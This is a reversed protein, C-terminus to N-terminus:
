FATQMQIEQYLLLQQNRTSFHQYWCSDRSKFIKQINPNKWTFYLQALKWRQWIYIVSKLYPPPPSKPTGMRSYIQFHGDQIPNLWFVNNKIEYKCFICKPPTHTHTHTHTQTHTHTHTRTHTYTQTIKDVKNLNSDKPLQAVLLDYDSSTQDLLLILIILVKM